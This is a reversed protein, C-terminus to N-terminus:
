SFSERRMAHLEKRLRLIESEKEDAVSTLYLELNLFEKNRKELGVKAYVAIRAALDEAQMRRAKELRYMEVAVADPSGPNWLYYEADLHNLLMALETQRQKLKGAKLLGNKVGVRGDPHDTSSSEAEMEKLLELEEETCLYQDLHSNLRQCAKAQDTQIEPEITTTTESEQQLVCDEANRRALQEVKFLEQLGILRCQLTERGREAREIRNRLLNNSEAHAVNEDKLKEITASADKNQKLLEKMKDKAYNRLKAFAMERDKLRKTADSLEDLLTSREEMYEQAAFERSAEVERCRHHWTDLESELAVLEAQQQESHGTLKEQAEQFRMQYHKLEM